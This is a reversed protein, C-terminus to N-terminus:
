NKLNKVEHDYNLLDVLKNELKAVLPSGHLFVVDPAKSNLAKIKDQEMKKKAQMGHNITGARFIRTDTGFKKQNFGGMTNFM